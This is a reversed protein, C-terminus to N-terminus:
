ARIVPRRPFLTYSFSILFDITVILTWLGATQLLAESRDADGVAAVGILMLGSGIAWALLHRLWGRRQHAAHPRRHRDLPDVREDVPQRQV